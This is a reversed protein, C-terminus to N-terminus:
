VCVCVCKHTNKVSQLHDKWNKKNGLHESRNAQGRKCSCVGGLGCVSPLARRWFSRLYVPRALPWGTCSCQLIIRPQKKKKKEQDKSVGEITKRGAPADLESGSGEQHTWPHWALCRLPLLAYKQPFERSGLVWRSHYNSPSLTWWQAPSSAQTHDCAEHM